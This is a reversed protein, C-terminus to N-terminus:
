KKHILSVIELIGESKCVISSIAYITIGVGTKIALSPVYGVHGITKSIVIIAVAMVSTCIIPKIMDAFVESISYGIIKQMDCYTIIAIVVSVIGCVYALQSISCHLTFSFVLLGTGLLILRVIESKVRLESHGFAYFVQVNVLMYPTALYCLCMGPVIDAAPLWKATLLICIVEEASLTFGVMLPIIIFSTMIIIKRIIHKVREIDSQSSSITPLLVGSMAGFTYLSFQRPLQEGKNYYGLDTVSYRKGIVLSYLSGNLYNLLSAGVVGASFSLMEKIRDYSFKWSIKWKVVRFLIITFVFTHSLRQIVLAWVGYGLIAAVIGLIASFLSASIQCYFLLKFQMNRNIIGDRVSSFAQAFLMLGLVRLVATIQPEAYYEAIFPASLFLVLYLILSITSSVAFVASYDFEDVKEKRILATGFGGQILMYSIEIFVSTLAILGFDSPLLLRALVISVIMSIGKNSFNQLILWISNVAFQKKTIQM